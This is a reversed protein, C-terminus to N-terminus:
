ASFVKGYLEVIQAEKKQSETYLGPKAKLRRSDPVLIRQWASTMQEISFQDYDDSQETQGVELARFLDLPHQSKRAGDFCSQVIATTKKIRKKSAIQNQERAEAMRMHNAEGTYALVKMVDSMFDKRFSNNGGLSIDATTILTFFDKIINKVDDNIDKGTYSVVTLMVLYFVFRQSQDLEGEKVLEVFHNSHNGLWLMMTTIFFVCNIKAQKYTPNMKKPYRDLTRLKCCEAIWHVITAPDLVEDMKSWIKKRFPNIPSLNAFHQVEKKNPFTINFLLNQEMPALLLHMFPAAEDATLNCYADVARSLVQDRFLTIKHLFENKDGLLAKRSKKELLIISRFYQEANDCETMNAMEQNILGELTQRM